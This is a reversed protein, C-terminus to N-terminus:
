RQLHAPALPQRQWVEVERPNLYLDIRTGSGTSKVGAVDVKKISLAVIPHPEAKPRGRARMFGVVEAFSPNDVEALHCVRPPLRLSAGHNPTGNVVTM